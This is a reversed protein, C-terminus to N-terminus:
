RHAPLIVDNCRRVRKVAPRSESVSPNRDGDDKLIECGADIGIFQM